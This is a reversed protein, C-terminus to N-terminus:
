STSAAVREVNINNHSRLRASIEARTYAKAVAISATAFALAGLVDVAYHWGTTLTSLIMLVCLTIAFPRLLRVSWLARACLIALIVHFSPFCIIGSEALNITYHTHGRLMILTAETAQQAESAHFGYIKWPGVAPLLGFTPMAALIAVSSSIIYEKAAQFKGAMLPIISAALMLPILMNYSMSLIMALSGHRAAFTVFMPVDLGFAHDVAALVGDQLPTHVRAAAYMPLVLVNGFVAMWVFLLFGDRLRYLRAWQAYLIAPLLAPIFLRFMQVPFSLSLGLDCVKLMVPTILLLAFGGALMMRHFHNENPQNLHGAKL